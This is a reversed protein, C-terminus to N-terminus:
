YITNLIEWQWDLSRCIRRLHVGPSKLIYKYIYLKNESFYETKGGDNHKDGSERRGIKYM